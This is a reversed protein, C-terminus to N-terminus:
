SDLLLRASFCSLAPLIIGVYHIFYMYEVQYFEFDRYRPSHYRRHDSEMYEKFGKTAKPNYAKKATM